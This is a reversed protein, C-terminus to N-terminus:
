TADYARCTQPMLRAFDDYSTFSQYYTKPVSFFMETPQLSEPQVGVASDFLVRNTAGSGIDYVVYVLEKSM